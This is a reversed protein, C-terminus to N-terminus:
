EGEKSTGARTPDIDLRAAVTRLTSIVEEATRHPQDNWRSLSQCPIREEALTWAAEVLEEDNCSLHSYDQAGVASHLAGVACRPGGHNGMDGRKWGRTELYSAAERLVDAPTM